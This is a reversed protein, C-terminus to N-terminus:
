RAPPLHRFSRSASSPRADLPPLPRGRHQPRAGAQRCARRPVGALGGQGRASLERPSVRPRRPSPCGSRHLLGAARGVSSPATGAARPSSAPGRTSGRGGSTPETATASGGRTTTPGTPSRRLRRRGTRPRIGNRPSPRIRPRCRTQRRSGGDAPLPARLRRVGNAERTTAAQIATRPLRAAARRARDAPLPIPSTRAVQRPEELQRRSLRRRRTRPPLETALHRHDETTGDPEREPGSTEASGGIGAVKRM